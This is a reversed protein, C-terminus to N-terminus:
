VRPERLDVYGPRPNRQWGRWAIFTLVIRALGLAAPGALMLAIAYWPIGTTAGM